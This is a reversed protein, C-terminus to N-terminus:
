LNKKLNKLLVQHINQNPYNFRFECVKLHLYFTSKAIGHFKMLRRKSYSWFSKIGNTHRRSNVFQDNYHHVRCHKKYGLDVLGSYGRWADSHIISEPEVKGRLIAQLTKRACDSKPISKRWASCLMGFVPTKGYPVAAV